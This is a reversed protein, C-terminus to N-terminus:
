VPSLASAPVRVGSGMMVLCPLSPASTRARADAPVTKRTTPVKQALVILEHPRGLGSAHVRNTGSHRTVGGPVPPHAPHSRRFRFPWRVALADEHLARRSRA